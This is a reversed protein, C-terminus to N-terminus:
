LGRSPQDPFDPWTRLDYATQWEEHIPGLPENLMMSSSEGNNEAKEDSTSGGKLANAVTRRIFGKTGDKKKDSSDSDLSRDRCWHYVFEEAEVIRKKNSEPVNVLDDKTYDVSGMTRKLPRGPVFGWGNRGVVEINEENTKSEDWKMNNKEFSNYRAKGFEYLGYAQINNYIWVIQNHEILHKSETNKPLGQYWTALWKNGLAAEKAADLRATVAKLKTQVMDPQTAHLYAAMMPQDLDSPRAAGVTYTHMHPQIQDDNQTTSFNGYLRHHNWLWLSQFTMPEMDPLTLSCLKQSPAYLRGGKDFPSIIFRGIDKEVLLKICDLTGTGDTGLGSATYSGFYHHHLNVYEFVDTQICKM